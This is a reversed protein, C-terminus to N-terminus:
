EIIEWHGTKDSGKWQILKMKQLEVLDRQITKRNVKLREALYKTNVAVNVAVNQLIDLIIRQRKLSNKQM